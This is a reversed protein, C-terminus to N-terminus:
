NDSQAALSSTPSLGSVSRTSNTRTQALPEGAPVGVPCCQQLFETEVVPSRELVRFPLRELTM